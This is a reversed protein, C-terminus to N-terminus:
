FPTLLTATPIIAMEEANVLKELEDIYIDSIHLQIACPVTDDYPGLPGSVLLESYASVLSPEWQNSQLVQFSSNVYRRMLLYFKDVRHKDVGSWERCMTTWFASLWPMIREVPLFKVLGALDDCLQQQILPKDSMWMCYFIGKWLKLLEVEETERRHTLYKRLSKVARDREKKD